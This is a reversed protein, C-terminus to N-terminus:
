ECFGHQCTLGGTCTSAGTGTCATCGTPPTTAKSIAKEFLCSCTESPTFSSLLGGDAARKVKMACIPIAGATGELDAADFNPSTKTGNIYGTFDVVKQTPNGNTLPAVIHEYGWITYHGDRVNRRDAVAPGSDSYYAQSQGLSAFALSNLVGRQADFADAAIFGIAAQPNAYNSVNTVVAGTGSSAVCIQPVLVTEPVGINKAVTIQTGSNPDRCFIGAAEIFPSVAGGAGCGYVTQAEKYTLYQTTTNAKPVVFVMAQAPGSVDSITTPKPQTVNGCSEYFVDSIAVDAKQGTAFTCANNTIAGAVLTYYRGATGGLDTGNVITAVGTCSGSANSGTALIITMPTAEATLKVAFQKLTPEFATSGSVIIPNVLSADNCMVQAHASRAALLSLAVGAALALRTLRTM